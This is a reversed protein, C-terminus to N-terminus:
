PKGGDHSDLPLPAELPDGLLGRLPWSDKAGDLAEAADEAVLRGAHVAQPLDSVLAASVRRADASAGELNDLTREIRSLTAPLEREAASLSGHLIEIAASAREFPAGAKEVAVTTRELAQEAKRAVSDTREQATVAVRNLQQELRVLSATAERVNRLTMRVDGQPDNISQAMNRLDDLIPHLKDALAQTMAAFDGAREFKLVGNNPMPRAQASGPLIEIFGAGILGEKALHAEADQTIHRMYESAVVIQVKVRADPELSLKEVTGIKFGSLEVSMGRSIGAASGSFFYLRSTQTFVGQRILTGAIAAIVILAALALFAGTRMNLGEFRRDHERFEAISASM